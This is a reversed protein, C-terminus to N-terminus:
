ANGTQGNSERSPFFGPRSSGGSRFRHIKLGRVTQTDTEQNELIIIQGRNASKGLWDYFATHVDSQRLDVEDSKPRDQGRYPNLPSDIVVFGPHPLDKELCFQMLGITFAAHTVARLGTGQASRLKGNIQIDLEDPDFFIREMGPVTWAELITTIKKALEDTEARPIEFGTSPIPTVTTTTKNITKELDRLGDFIALKDKTKVFQDTTEVLSKQCVRTSATIAPLAIRAEDLEASAKSIKHNLEAKEDETRRITDLLDARLVKIRQVEAAAAVAIGPLDAECTKEHDQSGEPAGCLPCTGPALMEVANAAEELATLRSIDSTYHDDLLSFRKLLGEVEGLRRQALDGLDNLRRIKRHQAIQENEAEGAALKQDELKAQAERLQSRLGIEDVGDDGLSSLREALFELTATRRKEQGEETKRKEAITVLASDDVGTLLFRFLSQEATPRTYQGSLVPSRESVIKHIDIIHIKSLTRTTLNEPKGKTSSRLVVGEMGMHNLFYQSITRHGKRPKLTLKELVNGGARSSLSGELVEVEGGAMSRRLTQVSQNSLVVSMLVTDYVTGETPIHQLKEGGLMFNVLDLVFSKGTDSIGIIASSHESFDLEAPPVRPGLCAINKISIRQWM